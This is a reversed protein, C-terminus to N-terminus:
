GLLLVLDPMMAVCFTCQLVLEWLLCLQVLLWLFFRLLLRLLM